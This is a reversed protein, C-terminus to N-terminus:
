AFSFSLAAKMEFTVRTSPRKWVSQFRSTSSAPRKRASSSPRAAPRKKAVPAVVSAKRLADRDGRGKRKTAEAAQVVCETSKLKALVRQLWYGQQEDEKHPNPSFAASEHRLLKSVTWLDLVLVAREPRMAIINRGWTKLDAHHAENGVTGSAMGERGIDNKARWRSSNAYYEVNDCHTARDLIQGLTTKGDGSKRSLQTAFSVKIAMMHKLFELRSKFPVSDDIKNLFNTASQKTFQTETCCKQETATFPKAAARHKVFYSTSFWANSGCACWKNAVKRLCVVVGPKLSLGFCSSAAIVIHYFDGFIAELVPLATFTLVTDWDAPRDVGLIETQQFVGEINTLEPLIVAVNEAGLASSWFMCGDITRGTMAVHKGPREGETRKAGHKSQGLVCMLFKFTGDLTIVRFAERNQLEQRCRVKIHQYQELAHKQLKGVVKRDPLLFPLAVRASIFHQFMDNRVRMVAGKTTTSLSWALVQKLFDDTFYYYGLRRYGLAEADCKLFLKMGNLTLAWASVKDIRQLNTGLKHVSPSSQLMLRLIGGADRLLQSAEVEKPMTSVFKEAAMAARRESWLAQVAVLHKSSTCYHPGQHDVQVHARLRSQRQFARYVCITCPYNLATHGGYGARGALSDKKARWESSLSQLLDEGPSIDVEDHETDSAEMDREVEGEIDSDGM